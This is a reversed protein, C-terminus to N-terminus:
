GSQRAKRHHRTRYRDLYVPVVAEVAHAQVGLDSLGPHKGSVVNDHYLLAVQDRTLLPKPLLGLFLAKFEAVILSVPLLIRRRGTASLIFEMIEKFSYIAPGGLEYTKGMSSNDELANVMADAVDGVYVPQFKPGGVGFFNISVGSEGGFSVKPFLPAGMVPMFPSLRSIGAFLNFFSDEPGFVVSPRFITANPFASLVVEEARAKTQAYISRSAKDAGLASMHLVRRIGLAAAVTAVNAAGDVHVREFSQKGWPTLIGVLNVVAAAGEIAARASGADKIDAPWAVVQGAEGMPKLHAASEIDRVAARVAYGRAALRKILHRGLFGSGGFVTIIRRAM